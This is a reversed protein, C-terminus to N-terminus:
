PGVSDSLSTRSTSGRQVRAGFVPQPNNRETDLTGLRPLVCHSRRGRASQCLEEKESTRGICIAQGRLMSAMATGCPGRDKASVSDRNVKKFRIQRGRGRGSYALAPRRQPGVHHFRTARLVLWSTNFRHCVWRANSRERAKPSATMRSSGASGEPEKAVGAIIVVALGREDPRVARSM